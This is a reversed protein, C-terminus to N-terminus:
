GMFVPRNGVIAQLMGPSSVTVMALMATIALGLGMWAYVQRVLANQKVILGTRAQTVNLQNM